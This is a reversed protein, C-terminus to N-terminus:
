KSWDELPCWDRRWKVLGSFMGCYQLYELLEITKLLSAWDVPASKSRYHNDLWYQRVQKLREIIEGIEEESM